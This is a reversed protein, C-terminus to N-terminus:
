DQHRLVDGECDGTSCFTLNTHYRHGCVNCYYHALPSDSDLPCVSQAFHKVDDDSEFQVGCGAAECTVLEGRAPPPTEKGDASPGIPGVIKRPPNPDPDKEGFYTFGYAAAVLGCVIIAAWKIWNPGSATAPRGPATATASKLSPAVETVELAPNFATEPPATMTAPIPPEAVTPAVQAAASLSLTKAHELQDHHRQNQTCFLCGDESTERPTHFLHKECFTYASEDVTSELDDVAELERVVDAFSPFRDRPLFQLCQAALRSLSEPCAPNAVHAPDPSKYTSFPSPQSKPPGGTLMAYLTAGFSYIDSVFDTQGEWTEPARYGQTGIITNGGGGEELVKAIGMDSIKPVLNQQRILVNQPKLDRHVLRFEDHMHQMGRAIGLAWQHAYKPHVPRGLMAEHISLGDVYELFLLHEEDNYLLAQVINPHRSETSFRIWLDVEDRFYRFFQDEAESDAPGSSPRFSATKVAYFRDPPQHCIYVVGMGGRKIDIVRYGGTLVDGVQHFDM